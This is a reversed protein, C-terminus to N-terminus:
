NQHLHKVVLLFISRMHSRRRNLIHPGITDFVKDYKPVDIDIHFVNKTDMAILKLFSFM